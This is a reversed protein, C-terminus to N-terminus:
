HSGPGSKPSACFPLVPFLPKHWDWALFQIGNVVTAWAVAKHWDWDLVQIGNVVTARAVAKNRDCALFNSSFCVCIVHCISFCFILFAVNPCYRVCFRLPFWIRRLVIVTCVCLCVYFLFRESLFAYLFLPHFWIKRSVVNSKKYKTKTNTMYNTHTETGIIRTIYCYLSLHKIQNLKNHKVAKNRDCALVQIGNVVTTRTVAKNRDCALVQIGNVVPVCVFAFMFSFVSPCFRM